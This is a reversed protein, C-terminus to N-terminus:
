SSVEKRGSLIPLARLGAFFLGTVLAGAFVLVLWEMTSPSYGYSLRDEVYAVDLGALQPEVLGPIVVNLRTALFSGAVLLSALGVWGTSRPLLTLLALPIIAGLGIQFVWFVWPYPGGLVQYAPESSSPVDAYLTISYEAWLIVAYFVLLGLTVRGLLHVTDRHSESGRGPALLAVLFTLMAAGSTLAVTIFLIPMLPANWFHRGGVVGFLAGSGGIVAAVLPIGVTFLMRAVRRDADASADSMDRRGFTLVSALAAAMGGETSREALDRRAVFWFAALLLAMFATYGWVMWTMMSSPSASTYVKYFRWMHGLDFWIILLGAPLVALSALLGLKTYKQVSAIGFVNAIAIVLFLGASLGVLYAYAAVWLGWPVSSTYNALEHGDTLRQVVGVLGAALAAVWLLGLPVAIPKSAIDVRM